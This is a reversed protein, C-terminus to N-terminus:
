PPTASITAAKPAPEMTVASSRGRRSLLNDSLGTLQRSRPNSGNYQCCKDCGDGDYLGHRPGDHDSAPHHQPQADYTQSCAWQKM